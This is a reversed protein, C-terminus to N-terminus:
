LHSVECKYCRTSPISRSYLKLKALRTDYNVYPHTTVLQVNIFHQLFKINEFENSLYYAVGNKIKRMLLLEYWMFDYLYKEVGSEHGGVEIIKLVRITCPM